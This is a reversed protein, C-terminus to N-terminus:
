KERERPEIWELGLAQYIEQETATPVIKGEL